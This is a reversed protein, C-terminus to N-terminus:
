RSLEGELMRVVTEAAAVADYSPDELMEAVIGDIAGGVAIALTRPDLAPGPGGSPRARRLLAALAQWRAASAPRAGGDPAGGRRPSDEHLGAEHLGAQVLVRARRPDEALHGVMRRVYAGPAATAGCADVAAGVDAVLEALVQERAAALVADKTPFHYLVAGKTIGAARAIRALSTAAYGHEAVLELTVEVLQTRRAQRIHSPAPVARSQTDETAM